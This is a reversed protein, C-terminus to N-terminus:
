ICESKSDHDKWIFCKKANKQESKKKKSETTKWVLTMPSPAELMKQALIVM